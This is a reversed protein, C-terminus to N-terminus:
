IEKRTGESKESKKFKESEESEESKEHGFVGRSGTWHQVPRPARIRYIYIYVCM